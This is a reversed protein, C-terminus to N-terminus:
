VCATSSRSTRPSDRDEFLTRLLTPSEVEFLIQSLFVSLSLARARAFSQVGKNHRHPDCKKKAVVDWARVAQSLGAERCAEALAIFDGFRKWTSVVKQGESYIVEYEAWM